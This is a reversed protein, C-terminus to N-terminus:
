DADPRRRLALVAIVVMALAFFAGACMLIGAATTTPPASGEDLRLADPRVDVNSEEKFMARVRPPVPHVGVIGEIVVDEAKGGPGRDRSCAVVPAERMRTPPTVPYCFTTSLDAGFVSGLKMEAGMERRAVGKIAVYGPELTEGQYIKMVHMKRGTGRVAMDRELLGRDVLWYSLALVPVSLGLIALLVGARPARSRVAAGVILIAIVAGMGVLLKTGLSATAEMLELIIHM